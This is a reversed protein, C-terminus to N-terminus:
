YLNWKSGEGKLLKNIESGLLVCLAAFCLYSVTTGTFIYRKLDNLGGAACMLCVLAGYALCVGIEKSNHMKRTILLCGWATLLYPITLVMLTQLTSFDTCHGLIIMLLIFILMDISGVVVLRASMVARLSFRTSMELEDMGYKESRGMGSVATIAIAPILSSIRAFELIDSNEKQLAIQWIVFLVLLSVILNVLGIERSQQDLIDWIHLERTRYQKLFATKDHSPELEYADAIMKKLQRDTM